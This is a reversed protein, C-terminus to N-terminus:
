RFGLTSARDGPLLQGPLYRADYKGNGVRM